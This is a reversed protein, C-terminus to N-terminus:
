SFPFMGTLLHDSGEFLEERTVGVGLEDDSAGSPEAHVLTASTPSSSQCDGATRTLTKVHRRLAIGIGYVGKDTRDHGFQIHQSANRNKGDNEVVVEGHSVVPYQM